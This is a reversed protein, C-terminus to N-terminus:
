VVEMQDIMIEIIREFDDDPHLMYDASIDYYMETCTNMTEVGHTGGLAEYIFDFPDDQALIYEFLREMAIEVIKYKRFDGNVNECDEKYAVAASKCNFAAIAEWNKSPKWMCLVVWKLEPYKM